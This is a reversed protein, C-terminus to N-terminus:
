RLTHAVRRVRETGQYVEIVNKGPELRLNRVLYHGQPANRLKPDSTDKANIWAVERGNHFLQVKGSGVLDYLVVRVTDQDRTIVSDVRNDLARLTTQNIPLTVDISNGLGVLRLNIQNTKPPEKLQAEYGGEVRRMFLAEDAMKIELLTSNTKIKIVTAESPELEFDGPGISPASPQAQAPPPNNQNNDQNNDQNDNQNQEPLYAHSFLETGTRPTTLVAILQGNTFLLQGSYGPTAAPAEIELTVGNPTASYISFGATREPGEGTLERAIFWARGDKSTMEELRSMLGLNETGPVQYLSVTDPDNPLPGFAFLGGIQPFEADHASAIRGYVTEGVKLLPDFIPGSQAIDQALDPDINVLTLSTTRAPAPDTVVEYLRHEKVLEQADVDPSVVASIFLRDGQAFAGDFWLLDRDVVDSASITHYGTASILYVDLGFDPFQTQQFVPSSLIALDDVGRVNQALYEDWDAVWPHPTQGDFILEQRSGTLHDFLFIEAQQTTVLVGAALDVLDYVDLDSLDGHSQLNGSNYKLLTHLRRDFFYGREPVQQPLRQAVSLTSYALRSSGPALDYIRQTVTDSLFPNDPSLGDIYSAMFGTETQLLEIPLLSETFEDYLSMGGTATPALVALTDLNDRDQDNVDLGLVEVGLGGARERLIFPREGSAFVALPSYRAGSAGGNNVTPDVRPTPDGVNYLVPFFADNEEFFLISDGDNFLFPSVLDSNLGPDITDTLTAEIATQATGTITYRKLQGPAIIDNYVLVANGSTTPTNPASIIGSGNPPTPVALVQFDAASLNIYSLDDQEVNHAFVVDLDPSYVLRHTETQTVRTTADTGDTKVRWIHKFTDVLFLSTSDLALSEARLFNVGGVSPSLVRPATGLTHLMLQHDGTEFDVAMFAIRTGNAVIASSSFRFPEFFIDEYVELQMTSLTLLAYRWWGDQLVRMAIHTNSVATLDRIAAPRDGVIPVVQATASEIGIRYLESYSNDSPGVFYVQDGIEVADSGDSFSYPESRFQSTMAYDYFNDRVQNFPNTTIGEFVLEAPGFNSTAQASLMIGPVLGAALLAVTSIQAIRKSTHKM